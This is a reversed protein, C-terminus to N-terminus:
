VQSQAVTMGFRYLGACAAAKDSHGNKPRGFKKGAKRAATLGDAIWDVLLSCEFEAQAALIHKIFKGSTSLASIVDKLFIVGIGRKGICSLINLFERMSRGLRDFKYVVLCDGDRLYQLASQM